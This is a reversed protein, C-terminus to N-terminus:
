VDFKGGTWRSCLQEMCIALHVSMVFSIAAKQLKAFMSLINM